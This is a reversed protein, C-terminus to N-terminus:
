NPLVRRALMFRRGYSRKLDDIVVGRNTSSHIFFVDKENNEIVIGVHGINDNGPTPSKFFLLDGKQVDTLEISEGDKAQYRSSRSLKINNNDFVYYVFGSCDFSEPGTKGYTYPKGILSKALLVVSDRKSIVEKITDSAVVPTYYEKLLEDSHEKNANVIQIIFFSTIVIGWFVKSKILQM